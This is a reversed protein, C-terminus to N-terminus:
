WPPARGVSSLPRSRSQLGPARSAPPLIRVESPQALPNVARGRQGSPFGQLAPWQLGAGRRRKRDATTSRKSTRTTPAPGAPEAVAIRRARPPARTRSASRARKGRSLGQPPPSVPGHAAARGTRRRAPRRARRRGSREGRRSDCSPPERSRRRRHDEHGLAPLEVRIEGLLGRGGSDVETVTRGHALDHDLGAASVRVTPSDRISAENTMPASPALPM